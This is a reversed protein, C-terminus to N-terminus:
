IDRHFGKMIRHLLFLAMMINEKWVIKLLRTMTLTSSMMRVMLAKGFIEIGYNRKEIKFLTPITNNVIDCIVVVMAELARQYEISQYHINPSVLSGVLSFPYGEHLWSINYSALTEIVDFLEEFNINPEYHKIETHFGCYAKKANECLYDYVERILNVYELDLGQVTINLLKDTINRTTPLTKGHYDFDLVAGAGLITTTRNKNYIRKCISENKVINDGM